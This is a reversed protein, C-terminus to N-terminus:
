NSLMAYPDMGSKNLNDWQDKKMTEYPINDVNFASRDSQYYATPNFSGSFPFGRGYDFTKEPKAPGGGFSLKQLYPMIKPKQSCRCNGHVHKHGDMSEISDYVNVSNMIDPIGGTINGTNSDNLKNADAYSDSLSSAENLMIENQNNNEITQNNNKNASSCQNFTQQKNNRMFLKVVIYVVLLGIALAIWQVVDDSYWDM